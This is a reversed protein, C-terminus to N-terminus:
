TSVTLDSIRGSESGDTAGGSAADDVSGATERPHDSALLAYIAPLLVLTFLTGIM